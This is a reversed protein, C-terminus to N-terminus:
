SSKQRAYLMFMFVVFLIQAVVYIPETVLFEKNDAWKVTQLSHAFGFIQCFMTLLQTIAALLTLTKFKM